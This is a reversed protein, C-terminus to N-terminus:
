YGRFSEREYEPHVKVFKTIDPHGKVPPTNKGKKKKIDGAFQLSFFLAPAHFLFTNWGLRALQSEIPSNCAPDPTIEPCDPAAIVRTRTRHSTSSSM